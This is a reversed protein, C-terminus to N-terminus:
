YEEETTHPQVFTSIISSNIITFVFKHHLKERAGINISLPTINESIRKGININQIKPITCKCICASQAFVHFLFPLSTTIM